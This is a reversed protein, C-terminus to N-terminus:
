ARRRRVLLTASAAAGALFFGPEPVAAALAAWDQPDVIGDAGASLGFNGALLNFDDLDVISNYNFDGEFWFKGSTGFNSALANFDDLDVTGSLNADGYRTYKIAVTAGGTYGVAFNNSNALSSRIGPGNWAGNNYGDEILARVDALTSGTPSDIVLANNTIDVAGGADVDLTAVHVASTRGALLRVTGAAAVSLPGAGIASNNSVELTGQLVTTPGTYNNAGTNALILNGAGVKTLSAAGTIGGPGTFTYNQSSDVVVAGASLATTLNVTTVASSNDFKVADGAYFQDSLVGNQWNFTTQV